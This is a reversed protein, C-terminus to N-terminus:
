PSYPAIKKKYFIGVYFWSLFTSLTSFANSKISQQLTTEVLKCDWWFFFLTLAHIHLITLTLFLSPPYITTIIIHHYLFLTVKIRSRLLQRPCADNENKQSHQSSLLLMFHVDAFHILIPIRDPVFLEIFIYPPTLLFFICKSLNNM